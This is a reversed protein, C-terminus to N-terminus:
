AARRWEVLDDGKELRLYSVSTASPSSACCASSRTAAAPRAPAPRRIARRSWRTSRSRGADDAAAAAGRRLHRAGFRARAGELSCRSSTACSRRARARSCATPSTRTWRRRRSASTASSTACRRTPSTRALARRRDREEGGPDGRVALGAHRHDPLGDRRARPAVEELVADFLEPRRLEELMRRTTTVMGGPLQHHYYTADYEQPRASRCGRRRRSRRPLAGVRARARRPRAPALLGRGRPQAADDRRGPQSTGSRWRRRGGHAARRFGARLGEM